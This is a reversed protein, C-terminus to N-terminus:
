MDELSFSWLEGLFHGSGGGAHCDEDGRHHQGNGNFGIGGYDITWSHLM